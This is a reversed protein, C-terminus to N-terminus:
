DAYVGVVRQLWRPYGYSDEQELVPAEGASLIHDAVSLLTDRREVEEGFAEFGVSWWVEGACEVKAVEWGCGAGLVEGGPAARVRRDGGVQFTRLAREKRVGIWSASMGHLAAEVIGSEALRFSWKRWREVVGAASEGFRVMEQRGYRQKVEIRGERLKVGLGDGEDIRLYYDM